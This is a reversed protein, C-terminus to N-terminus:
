LTLHLAQFPLPPPHYASKTPGMYPHRNEACVTEACELRSLNTVSLIPNPTSFIASLYKAMILTRPFGHARFGQAYSYGSGNVLTPLSLIM